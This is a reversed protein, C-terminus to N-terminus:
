VYASLGPLDIKIRVGYVRYRGGAPNNFEFLYMRDAEVEHAMGTWPTWLQVGTTTTSASQLTTFNPTVSFDSYGFVAAFTSAGYRDVMISIDQIICGVPLMPSAALYTDKDENDSQFFMTGVYVDDQDSATRIHVNPIYVYVGTRPGVGSTDLVIPDDDFQGSADLIDNLRERIDIKLYRFLEDISAAQASGLPASEDWSRSYGPM